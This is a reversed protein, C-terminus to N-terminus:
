GKLYNFYTGATTILSATVGRPVQVSRGDTTEVYVYDYGSASVGTPYQYTGWSISHYTPNDGGGASIGSATLTTMSVGGSFNGTTGYIFARVLEGNMNNFGVGGGIGGLAVSSLPSGTGTGISGATIGGGGMTGYDGGYKINKAYVDGSFTGSTATLHGTSSVQFAINNNADRITISGGTITANTATLAGSSTVKFKGGGLSIGDTGVYIGNGSTDSLSSLGNRIYRSGIEFGASETGIYGSTATIKGKVEIGDRTARLVTSGGSFLRWDSDTLSWGFSSQSGGNRSVKASIEDAQITLRSSIENESSTARAVEAVIADANISLRSRTYATERRYERQQRTEFHFEHNVEEDFPAKLTPAMLRSHKIDYGMVVAKTGNATVGDGIEITPDTITRESNFPQYRYGRLRLNALISAANARTGGPLNVELVNGTTGVMYDLTQGSESQGAHLLVGTVAGQKLGVELNSMEQNLNINSM